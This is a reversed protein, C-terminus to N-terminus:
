QSQANDIIKIFFKFLKEWAIPENWINSSKLRGVFVLSIRFKFLRRDKMDGCAPYGRFHKCSGQMQSAELIDLGMTKMEVKKGSSACLGAMLFEGGGIWEISRKTGVGGKYVGYVVVSCPRWAPEPKGVSWLVRLQLHSILTWVIEWGSGTGRATDGAPICGQDGPHTM